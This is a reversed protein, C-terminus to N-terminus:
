QGGLIGGFRERCQPCNNIHAMGATTYPDSMTPHQDETYLELARRIVDALLEGRGAARAKARHWLEDPVRVPHIPTGKSPM